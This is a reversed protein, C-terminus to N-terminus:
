FGYNWGSNQEQKTNNPTAFGTLDTSSDEEENDSPTNKLVPQNNTSSSKTTTANMYQSEDTNDNARIAKLTDQRQQQQQQQITQVHQMATQTQSYSHSLQQAREQQTAPSVMAFCTASLTALSLSILAALIPNNM